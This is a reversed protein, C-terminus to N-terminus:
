VPEFARVSAVPIAQPDPDVPPEPIPVALSPVFTKAPTRDSGNKKSRVPNRPETLPTPVSQRPQLGVSKKMRRLVFAITRSTGSSASAVFM